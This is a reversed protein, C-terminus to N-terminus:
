GATWGGDIMMNAGTIYSAKSSCLFVILNAVEEPEGARGMATRSKILQDWKPDALVKEVFPTNIFGPAISNTRIGYKAWEIAFAKSMQKVAGKTGAYIGRDPSVIENQISGLNVMAGKIGREIMTKGVEQCAFFTGKMNVDVMQNWEDENYEEIPKRINVGACNVLIDIKDNKEIVEQVMRRIDALKGVDAQVYSAKLGQSRLEAVFQAGEDPNRSAIVTHAGEKCLEIVTARGIGKTGGTVLAVKGTFEGM